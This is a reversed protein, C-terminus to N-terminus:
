GYARALRHVEGLLTRAQADIEDWLLKGADLEASGRHGCAECHVDLALDANPDAAELADEVERLSADPLAAADGADGADLMCRALLRRAAQAADREHAVAALDRLSPLRCRLGAAAVSQPTDAAARLLSDASLSLALREGCRACDVHARINAGFSAARLRVLGATIEGLPLRRHARGANRAAGM